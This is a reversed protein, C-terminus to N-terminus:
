VKYEEEEKPGYPGRHWKRWSSDASFWGVLERDDEMEGEDENPLSIREDTDDDREIEGISEGISM